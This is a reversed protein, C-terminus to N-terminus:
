HIHTSSLSHSLINLSDFKDKEMQAVLDERSDFSHEDRIRQIVTIRLTHGYLDGEFDFLHVEITRDAPVFTPRRGINMMGSWVDGGHHARIAYVGDGPSLKRSETIRLNATPFSLARGLAQGQVVEGEFFYHRGLAETAEDIEGGAVLERILSSSIRRGNLQVPPVTQVSFHHDRGMTVVDRATGRRDNGFAHNPGIVMERMGISGVLVGRVFDQPSMRSLEETFPLMCVVDLSTESLLELKEVRSTLLGPANEPAVVQQPHPDFTILIATGRARNARGIIERIIKQHGLHVGDFSGVTVVPHPFREASPIDEIVHM